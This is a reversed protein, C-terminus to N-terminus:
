ITATDKKVIFGEIFESLLAFFTIVMAPLFQSLALSAIIGIIMSLEMNVRGKRLAALSEKFIGGALVAIVVVTNGLWTPQLLHMWAVVVIITPM